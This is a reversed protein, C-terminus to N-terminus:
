KKDIQSDVIDTFSKQPEPDPEEKKKRNISGQIM